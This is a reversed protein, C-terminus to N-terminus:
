TKSKYWCLRFFERQELQYGTAHVCFKVGLEKCHVVCDMFGKDGAQVIPLMGLHPDKLWALINQRVYKRKKEIDASRIIHEVGLKGCIKSANLRSIDTTLGWDYTYAIPSMKYKTKIIHLGYCSDRGGSLGILCDPKKNENRFKRFFEELKDEGLFIQKKYDKCYNCVGDKDFYIFPYTEPLICKTCKVLNKLKDLSEKENTVTEFDKYFKNNININKKNNNINEFNNLEEIEHNKYNLIITKNIIQSIFISSHGNKIFNCKNLFKKFNSKLLMVFFKKMKIM